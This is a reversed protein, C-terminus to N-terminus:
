YSSRAILRARAARYEADTMETALKPKPPQSPPAKSLSSSSPGTFLWPKMQRLEAILASTGAVDGNDEIRVRNLDVFALGDLDVMGARIAEVKMEALIVRKNAATRVATNERELQELRSQLTEESIDKKDDEPFEDIM